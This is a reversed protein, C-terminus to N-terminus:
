DLVDWHNKIKKDSTKAVAQSNVGMYYIVHFMFNMALSNLSDAIEKDQFIILKMLSKDEKVM